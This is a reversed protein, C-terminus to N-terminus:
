GKEADAVVKSIAELCQSPAFERRGIIGTVM